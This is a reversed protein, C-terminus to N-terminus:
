ITQSFLSEKRHDLKPDLGMCINRVFLKGLDTVQILNGSLTVLGDKEMEDWEGKREAITEAAGDGPELTTTFHCMLQTIHHRINMEAPTLEHGKCLALKHSHISDMYTEVTKYNQVFASTSDSIASVGLGILLHTDTTTYGMFNRHLKRQEFATYLSDTKLAFHDMGIEAYGHEELWSRGHEYLARKDEHNPLDEETFKRMGPKIWPVHAYSYFAIRDPRWQIVAEMTMAISPLTQKPLGYVLDLNISTYGLQRAWQIVQDVNEKPQIRHITDQVVPDLDQVGFSVRRFGLRHLTKLHDYTTNNPHGEFSFEPHESVTCRELIYRILKELNEPSFFTPTGGGLHIENVLPKEPLQKLYLEWEQCLTEVYPSEVQHNVTIRTNCGCYTCLSECYPLHIYLAIGEGAAHHLYADRVHEEWRHLSPPEPNWHPVTPYSTYRPGPVNYKRILANRELLSCTM